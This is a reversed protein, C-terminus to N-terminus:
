LTDKFAGSSLQNFTLGDEKNKLVNDVYSITAGISGVTSDESAFIVDAGAAALYGSSAAVEHVVAVSPKGFHSIAIAIEDGAVPGGGYSEVDVLLAKISPDGAASRLVDEIESSVAFTTDWASTPEADDPASMQDQSESQPRVTVIAGYVPLRLVNCHQTEGASGISPLFGAFWLAAVSATGAGVFAGIIILLLHSHPPNM